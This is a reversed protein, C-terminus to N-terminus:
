GLCGLVPEEAGFYCAPGFEGAGVVSLKEEVLGLGQVVVPEHDGPKWLKQPALPRKRTRLDPSSAQTPFPIQRHLIHKESPHQLRIRLRQPLIKHNHPLHRIRHIRNNWPRRIRLHTTSNSLEAATSESKNSSESVPNRLHIQRPEQEIASRDVSRQVCSIRNHIHIYLTSLLAPLLAAPHPKYKLYDRQLRAANGYVFYTIEVM